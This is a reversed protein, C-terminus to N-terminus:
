WGGRGAPRASTAPPMDTYRYCRSRITIAESIGCEAATRVVRKRYFLFNRSSRSTIQCLGGNMVHGCLLDGGRHNKDYRVWLEGTSINERCVTGPSIHGMIRRIKLAVRLWKRAPKSTTFIGDM